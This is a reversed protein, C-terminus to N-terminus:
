DVKEIEYICHDTNHNENIEMFNIVETISKFEYVLYIDNNEELFVKLQWM